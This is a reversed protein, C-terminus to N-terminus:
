KIIVKKGNVIYLGKTPQAVRQGALNFYQNDAKQAKIENVGTAEEDDFNLNIRASATSTQLYARNKAVTNGNAHYFGYTSGKKSLIWNYPGTGTAVAADNGKHFINGTVVDTEDTVAVDFYTDAVIGPARLLVGTNAPVNTVQYLKIDGSEEKAIYAELTGNFKLNVDTCYTALGASTVKIGQGILEGASVNKVGPKNCYKAVDGKMLVKGCGVYYPHGAPKVNLATRIDGSPLQASIFDETENPEDALALNSDVDISTNILVGTSSNCAGIIYGTVYVSSKVPTTNTPNLAIIDAVSYPNYKTGKETPDYVAITCTVTSPKHTGGAYIAKVSAEGKISTDVSLVGASESVLGATGTIEYTIGTLSNPNVLTPLTYGSTADQEIEVDKIDWYIGANARTDTVTLTYTASSAAWSGAVKAASAKVVVTGARTPTVEGTSANISAGASNSTMSYTVTGSYGAATTATQTYSGADKLDLSVATEAFAAESDADTSVEVGQILIESIGSGKSSSANKCCITLSTTGTPSIATPGYYGLSTGTPAFTTLDTAGQSVYIVKQEDSPGGYKRAKVKITINTYGSWDISPSVISMTSAVLQYGGSSSYSPSGNITWGTHEANTFSAITVPDTAWANSGVVLACLLFVTKLLHLKKM